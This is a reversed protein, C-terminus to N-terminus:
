DEEANYAVEAVEIESISNELENCSLSPKNDARSEEDLIDRDSELVPSEVKLIQEGETGSMCLSEEPELSLTRIRNEITDIHLQKESLLKKLSEVEKQKELLEKQLRYNTEELTECFARSEELSDFPGPPDDLCLFERVALCNAIDKHAVLNQLFAQLGLQREELFDANYNDKFWRKPPLALRFGPFTEKLKDNLRSFDTYRRFVVWSEEPSKKVLVKYVTFKAREEMVEYGLITPTSPRDEWSATEPNQEESERPRASYEISSDTGTFKTRILPSSCISSTSEMQDPMSTQKYNGMNSDELQGKSSNSSTSISGFSSSRQNRNPTFSSASNGIPMPVPVYPTAM